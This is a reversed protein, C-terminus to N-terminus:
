NESDSWLSHFQKMLKGVSMTSFMDRFLLMWKCIFFTCETCRGSWRLNCRHWSSDCFYGASRWRCRATFVHAKAQWRHLRSCSRFHWAKCALYGLPKFCDLHRYVSQFVSDTYHIHTYGHSVKESLRSMVLNTRRCTHLVILVSLLTFPCRNM